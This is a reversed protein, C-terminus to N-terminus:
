KSWSAQIVPSTAYEDPLEEASIYEFLTETQTDPEAGKKKAFLNRCIEYQQRAAEWQGNLALALMLARHAAENYPELGVWQRAYTLMQSTQDLGQYIDVLRQLVGIAQHHLNQADVM